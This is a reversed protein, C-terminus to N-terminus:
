LEEQQGPLLIKSTRLFMVSSYQGTIQSFFKAFYGNFAMNPIAKLM